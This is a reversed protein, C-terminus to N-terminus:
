LHQRHAVSVLREFVSRIQTLRPGPADILIGERQAEEVVAAWIEQATAIERDESVVNLVPKGTVPHTPAITRSSDYLGRDLGELTACGPVVLAAVVLSLALRM